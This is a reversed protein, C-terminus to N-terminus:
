DALEQPEEPGNTEGEAEAAGGPHAVAYADYFCVLAAQLYITLLLSGLMEFTSGIVAGFLGAVFGSLLAILLMWGLFSFELMFLELKRRRMARYSVRICENPSRQPEDALAIPALWYHFMARFGLIMMLFMGAYELPLALLPPLFAAGLMLVSGPLMWAYVRLLMWLTTVLAKPSYRLYSLSTSLKVERKRAADLLTRNLLVMLAPTLLFEIATLTLFIAGKEQAFLRIGESYEVMIADMQSQLEELSAETEQEAMLDTMKSVAGKVYEDPMAGTLQIGVMNILQPLTVLMAVVVLVSMLPRILTMARRRFIYSPIM